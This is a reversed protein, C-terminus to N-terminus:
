ALKSWFFLGCIAVLVITWFLIRLGRMVKTGVADPDEMEMRVWTLLQPAAYGKLYAAFMQVMEERSFRDQGQDAKPLIVSGTRLPRRAGSRAAFYHRTFDGERKEIIFGDSQASTQLYTEEDRLLIAFSNGDPDLRRLLEELEHPDTIQKRGDAETELEM